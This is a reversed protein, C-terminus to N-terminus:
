HIEDVWFDFIQWGDDQGVWGGIQGKLNKKEAVKMALLIKQVIKEDHSRLAYLIGKDNCYHPYECNTARSEVTVYPNGDIDREVLASNLNLSDSVGAIGNLTLLSFTM